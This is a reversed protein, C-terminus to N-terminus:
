EPESDSATDYSYNEDLRHNEPNITQTVFTPYNFMINIVENAQYPTLKEFEHKYLFGPHNNYNAINLAQMQAACTICPRSKGYISFEFKGSKRFFDAVDCLLAEAHLNKFAKNNNIFLLYTADERFMFFPLKLYKGDKVVKQLRRNGHQIIDRVNRSKKTHASSDGWIRAKIKKGFRVSREAGEYTYEDTYRRLLLDQYSRTKFEKAILDGCRVPTTAIFLFSKVGVDGGAGVREIHMIQIDELDKIELQSKFRLFLQTAIHRLLQRQRQMRFTKKRIYQVGSLKSVFPQAIRKSSKETKNNWYPMTLIHINEKSIAESEPLMKVYTEIDRKFYDREIEDFKETNIRALVKQALVFKRRRILYSLASVGMVKSYINVNPKYSDLIFEIVQKDAHKCVITFFSRASKDKNEDIHFKFFEQGIAEQFYELLIKMNRVNLYKAAAHFITGTEKCYKFSLLEDFVEREKCKKVAHLLGKADNNELLDEILKCNVVEGGTKALAM